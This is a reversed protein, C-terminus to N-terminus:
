IGAASTAALEEERKTFDVFQMIGGRAQIDAIATKATAIHSSRLNEWRQREEQNTADAIQVKNLFAKAGFKNVAAVNYAVAAVVIDNFYGLPMWHAKAGSGLRLAARYKFQESNNGTNHYVGMYPIREPQSEEKQSGHMDMHGGIDASDVTLLREFELREEDGMADITAQLGASYQQKSM